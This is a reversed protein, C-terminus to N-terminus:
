QPNVAHLSHTKTHNTVQIDLLLEEKRRRISELEQREEPSLDDPVPCLPLAFMKVRMITLKEDATPNKERLSLPSATFGQM